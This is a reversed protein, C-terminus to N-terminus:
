SRLSDPHHLPQGAGLGFAAGDHDIGVSPGDAQEHRRALYAVLSVSGGQQGAQRSGLPQQDIPAVLGVPESVGELGLDDRGADWPSFGM